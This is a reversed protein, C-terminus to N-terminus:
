EKRLTVWFYQTGAGSLAIVAFSYKAALARVERESFTAGLWTNKPRWRFRKAQDGQLQFKFVAGRKLVRASDAIHSEIVKRDPIHQLVTYSFCFDFWDAPFLPLDYGSNVALHVNPARSLRQSAIRVMEAAIDVEHVEGFIAALAKTM